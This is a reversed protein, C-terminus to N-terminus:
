KKSRTLTWLKNTGHWVKNAALKQPIETSIIVVKEL